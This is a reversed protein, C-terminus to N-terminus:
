MWRIVAVGTSFLLVTVLVAIIPVAIAIVSMAIGANGIRKKGMCLSVIGMVIAVVPALIAALWLFLCPVAMIPGVYMLGVGLFFVPVAAADLILAIVSYKIDPYKEKM